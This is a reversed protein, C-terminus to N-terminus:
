RVLGQRMLERQVLTLAWVDFLAHAAMVGSLSQSYHFALGFLLSYGFIFALLIPGALHVLAFALSVLLIASWAPIHDTLFTQLGGRFLAEEGVGAALSILLIQGTSYPKGSAFLIKQQAASWALFGPFALMVLWMSGILAATVSAAVALDVPHLGVFTELSRGSGWWIALGAGLGVLGQLLILGVINGPRDIWIPTGPEEPAEADM